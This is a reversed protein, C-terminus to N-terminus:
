RKTDAINKWITEIEWVELSYALGKSDSYMNLNIGGESDPFWRASSCHGDAYVEVISSDLYISIELEEDNKILKKEAKDGVRSVGGKESDGFSIYLENESHNFGIKVLDGSGDALLIGTEGEGKRDIKLKIELQLEDLSSKLVNLSEGPYVGKSTYLKGGRLKKLEAAPEFILQFGDVGITRPMTYSNVWGRRALDQIENNESAVNRIMSWRIVRGSPETITQGWRGSRFGFEYFGGGKRIFKGDQIHGTIYEADNDILNDSSMVAVGDVFYIQPHHSARNTGQYFEGVYEWDEMSANKSKYLEILGFLNPYELSRGAYSGLMYWSGEFKFIFNNMPRLGGKAPPLEVLDGLEWYSLDSDKSVWKELYSKNTAVTYGPTSRFNMGDPYRTPFSFATEGIEIINGSEPESWLPFPMLEWYILDRSRYHSWYHGGGFIQSVLNIHAHPFVHYDRKLYSSNSPETMFGPSLLHYKPYYVDESLAKEHFNSFDTHLNKYAEKLSISDEYFGEWTTLADLPTEYAEEM